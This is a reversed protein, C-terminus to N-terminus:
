PKERLKKQGSLFVDLEEYNNATAESVIKEPDTEDTVHFTTWVTDTHMYLARKCGAPAIFLVPGELTQLGGEETMTTVKGKQIFAPHNHKHIKSTLFTGAPMYITRTCCNDGFSHETKFMPHDVGGYQKSGPVAKIAEELKMIMDRRGEPTDPILGMAERREVALREREISFMAIGPHKHELFGGPMWVHVFPRGEIGRAEPDEFIFGLRALWQVSLENRCDVWNEIVDAHGRCFSIFNKSAAWFDRAYYELEDTGLGWIWAHGPSDENNRLGFLYFPEGDAMGCFAYQSSIVADKAAQLPELGSATYIEEVDSERMNMAIYQAHEITAKVVSIKKM